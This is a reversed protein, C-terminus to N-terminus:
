SSLSSPSPSHSPFPTFDPKICLWQCELNFHDKTASDVIVVVRDSGLKVRPDILGETDFQVVYITDSIKTIRDEPHNDNEFAIYGREKDYTCVASGTGTGISFAVKDQENFVNEPSDCVYTVNFYKQTNEELYPIDAYVTWHEGSGVWHTNEYYARQEQQACGSFLLCLVLGLLCLTKKM